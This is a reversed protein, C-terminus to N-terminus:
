ASAGFSRLRVRDAHNVDIDELASGITLVEVDTDRIIQFRAESLMISSLDEM